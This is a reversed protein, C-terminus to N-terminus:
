IQLAKELQVIADLDIREADEMPIDLWYAHTDGMFVLCHIENIIAITTDVCFLCTAYEYGVNYRAFGGKLEQIYTHLRESFKWGNGHMPSIQFAFWGNIGGDPHILRNRITILGLMDNFIDDKDPKKTGLISSWLLPIKQLRKTVGGQHLRKLDEFQEKQIAKKALFEVIYGYETLVADCITTALILVQRAYTDLRGDPHVGKEPQNLWAEQIEFHENRAHILMLIMDLVLLRLPIVIEAKAGGDMPMLVIESSPPLRRLYIEDRSMSQALKQYDCCEYLDSISMRMQSTSLHFREVFLKWIRDKDNLFFSFNRKSYAQFFLERLEVYSDLNEQDSQDEITRLTELISDTVKNWLEINNTRDVIFAYLGYLAQAAHNAAEKPLFGFTQNKVLTV